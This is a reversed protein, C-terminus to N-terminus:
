MSYSERTGWIYNTGVYLEDSTILTFLYPTTTNLIDLALIWLRFTSIDHIKQIDDRHLDFLEDQKNTSYIESCEHLYRTQKHRM